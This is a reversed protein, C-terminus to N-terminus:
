TAAAYAAFLGTEPEGAGLNPRKKIAHRDIYATGGMTPGGCKGSDSFLNKQCREVILKNEYETKGMGM